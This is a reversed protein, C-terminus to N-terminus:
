SSGSDTFYILFAGQKNSLVNIQLINHDFCILLCLDGVLNGPKFIGHAEYSILELIAKGDGWLGWPWSGMITTLSTNCVSAPGHAYLRRCPKLTETYLHRGPIAGAETNCRADLGAYCRDASRVM